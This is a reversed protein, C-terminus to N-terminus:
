KLSVEKVIEAQDQENCKVMSVKNDKDLCVIFDSVISQLPLVLIESLIIELMNMSDIEFTQENQEIFLKSDLSKLERLPKWTEVQNKLINDEVYCFINYPPDFPDTQQVEIKLM